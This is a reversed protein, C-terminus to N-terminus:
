NSVQRTRRKREEPKVGMKWTSKPYGTGSHRWEPNVPAKPHHFHQHCSSSYYICLTLWITAEFLDVGLKKVPRIGKRRGFLLTLASFPLNNCYISKLHCISTRLVPVTATCTQRDTQRETQSRQLRASTLVSSGFKAFYPVTPLSIKEAPEIELVSQPM